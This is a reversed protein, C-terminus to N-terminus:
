RAHKSFNHTQMIFLYCHTCPSDEDNENTDNANTSVTQLEEVVERVFGNLDKALNGLGTGIGFLNNM